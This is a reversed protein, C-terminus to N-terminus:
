KEYEIILEAPFGSERAMFDVGDTSTPDIALTLPGNTLIDVPLNVEAIQHESLAGLKALERGLPPRSDYNVEGEKWDNGSLCLRGADGTPNGANAIRLRASIPRGPLDIQFKLYALGHFGDNMKQDGGDVLLPNAKGFNRDAYRQTVHADDAAKFVARALSGLHEVPLKMELEVQGDSRLLKVGADYRGPAVQPDLSVAIDFRRSLRGGAAIEVPVDGPEIQFGKQAAIQLRGIFPRECLNVLQVEGTRKPEGNNILVSPVICGPGVFDEREIEMAQLMPLSALATSGSQPVLELALEDQVEIGTFEKWVAKGGGAVEIDFREAVRKGQLQIDFVRQGAPAHEPDFFGLRVRYRARGDGPKMLSVVLKKLGNARSSFLWPMEAGEVQTYRSNTRSFSGGPFFTADMKIPLVLSGAPRPFGIWIKGGADRRDGPAGLNLSLQKVPTTPGSLSFWAWANQQTVPQFVVTGKNPFDCMCGTSAEPMVVVGGTAMFNIWCGPRQAAFHMTGYDGLLDYYGLNWSRFFLCNVSASPCGCHHGPRAFQWQEELGTVPNVRTRFQGSHLDVAWPEVHLTNGVILPRVRYGVSKEWIPKGDEASLAIVRRSDFRGAFFDQWYHGDLYVGFLVLVGDHCMSAVNPGCNALDMVQRWKLKGTAADLALLGRVDSKLLSEEAGKREAEPLGAIRERQGDLLARREEDTVSTTVTFLNGGSLSISNHAIGPSEYIWQRTGSQVDFALIADSVGIAGARSGYLRNGSIGLWGFRPAANPVQQLEYRTLTEGTAPDLRLCKRGAGVFLGDESVAFASSDHSANPRSAGTIMRDWIKVGNYIDYAMVLDEGLVFMRGDRSVPSAGRVHRNLMEAPGPAGFWLVGLPCKVLQDDSCATNEPTSYQHTWSGSGPLAGRVAAIWKGSELVPKSELPGFAARWEDIAAASPTGGGAAPQGVMLVGGHPKVLRQVEGFHPPLKGDLVTSECVVLNAFYDSYPLQADAAVHDICVRAGLVGAADCTLRAAKVKEADAGVAYVTMKSRKAIEWALQGTECGLVLCYGEQVGAQRVMTEAAEAFAAKAPSNALPSEDVASCVEGCVATGAPAFCYIRGKDTSVVLRGDVVTLGKAAGDVEAEWVSKGSDAAFAFVRNAGGAVVVNGAMILEDACRCDTKWLENRKERDMAIIQKGTALYYTKEAVVLRRGPFVAFRDRTQQNFAVLQETGTYVNDGAVLAYCGGVQKGFSTEYLLQGNDRRFAAPSVRGMPAYLTSPSAVLYGQPSVRSQPNEGTSDNCWQVKGTAADLAYLFVGEAPLIGAGVYAVGGDILVGTRSPWLSIMKGHGLARRSEPAACFVWIDSGDKANVCYVFGDDSGFYIRGEFFTPALRIPGGTTKTWRVAGSDRDLCYLKHDASSGFYLSDGVGIVQFVDDFHARRLELIDEIPVPKPDGWAPQPAFRNQFVWSEILPAALPESTIGSRAADHRYTPWGAGASALAIAIAAIWRSSFTAVIHRSRSYKRMREEQM